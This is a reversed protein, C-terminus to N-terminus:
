LPDKIEELQIFDSPNLFLKVSNHKSCRVALCLISLVIVLLCINKVKLYKEIM